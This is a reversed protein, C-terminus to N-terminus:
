KNEKERQRQKRKAMLLACRQSCYIKKTNGKGVDFYYNCTPNNCRRIQTNPTFTVQLEMYMAELLSTIHWDATLQDNEYRLEPSILSTQANMMDSLCANAASIIRKESIENSLTSWEIDPSFHLFRGEIDTSIHSIDTISRLVDHYAEWTCHFMDDYRRVNGFYYEIESDSTMHVYDNLEELYGVTAAHIDFCDDTLYEPRYEPGDKAISVHYKLFTYFFRNFRETETNTPVHSRDTYCLLIEALTIVMTIYDSSDVASKLRLFRQMTIIERQLTAIPLVDPTYDPVVESFVSKYTKFFMYDNTKNKELRNSYLLGYKNCFDLIEQENSPDIAAFEYAISGEEYSNQSYLNKLRGPYVAKIVTEGDEQFFGYIGVINNFSFGKNVVM